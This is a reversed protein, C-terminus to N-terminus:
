GNESTAASSDLLTLTLCWSNMQRLPKDGKPPRVKGRVTVIICSGILLSSNLPQNIAVVNLKCDFLRTCVSSRTLASFFSGAVTFVFEGVFFHFLVLSHSLSLLGPPGSSM